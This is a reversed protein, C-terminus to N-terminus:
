RFYWFYNLVFKVYKVYVSFCEDAVDKMSRGADILEKAKMIDNRSGATNAVFSGFEEPLTDPVRTDLKMCYDRAAEASGKRKEMHAGPLLKQFRTTPYPNKFAFYAQCHRRQTHPCIEQQFVAYQVAANGCADRMQDLDGYWTVCCYRFSSPLRETSMNALVTVM